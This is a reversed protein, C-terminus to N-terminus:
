SLNGDEDSVSHNLLIKIQNNFDDISLNDDVNSTYYNTINYRNVPKVDDINLVQVKIPTYSMNGVYKNDILYEGKPLELSYYESEKFKIAKM